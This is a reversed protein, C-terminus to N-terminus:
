QLLQQGERLTGSYQRRQVGRHVLRHAVAELNGAERRELVKLPALLPVRQRLEAVLVLDDLEHM